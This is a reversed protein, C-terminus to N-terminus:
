KKMGFFTNSVVNHGGDMDLAVDMLILGNSVLSEIIHRMPLCHMEFGKDHKWNLYSSTQFAYQQHHAITQFLFIGGSKIKKLIKNLIYLQLPPPNHQLVIQSYFADVDPIEDFDQLDCVLRTNVNCVNLEELYRHCENLNGRSVDWAEVSEFYKAFHYTLRGVGCGLEFIKGPHFSVANKKAFATLNQIGNLGSERFEAMNRTINESIYKPDTLVSAYPEVEGMHCWQSAIRNFIANLQSDDCVVEMGMPNPPMFQQSLLKRIDDSHVNLM